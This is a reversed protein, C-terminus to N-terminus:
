RVAVTIAVTYSRGPRSHHSPPPPHLVTPPRPPTSSDSRTEASRKIKGSRMRTWVQRAGDPQLQQETRQEYVRKVEKIKM